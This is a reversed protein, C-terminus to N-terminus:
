KSPTDVIIPFHLLERVPGSWTPSHTARSGGVEHVSLVPENKPMLQIDVRWDIPQENALVLDFKRVLESITSKVLLLALSLGVCAHGGAGFPFYEYATPKAVSWRAPLFLNPDPFVHAERHALFPCLVVETGAPLSLGQLSVPRSTIRVMLANPTLLRLTENVVNDLLPTGAAIMPDGCGNAMEARLGKRIDPRQSLVLLLWTLSIAIPETSSIFLVNIHGVIEDESLDCKGATGAIALSHLLSGPAYYKANRHQRIRQRLADDLRQGVMTLQELVEPRVAVFPSSSERRLIFYTHLLSALDSNEDGSQGLLADAAIRLTLQRMESLLSITNGPKWRQTYESVVAAINAWQSASITSRLVGAVMRKHGAHESGSMSHLGRNLNVLREPLSLKLAASRPMVFADTDSLVQRQREAGFVAVVGCCTDSRSFIARSEAIAFADGFETRARALFAFPDTM